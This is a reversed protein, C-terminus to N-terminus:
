AEVCALGKMPRAKPWIAFRTASFHTAIIDYVSHVYRAELQEQACDVERTAAQEADESGPQGDGSGLAHQKQASHGEGAAMEQPAACEQMGHSNEM